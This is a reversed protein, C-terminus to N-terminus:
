RVLRQLFREVMLDLEVEVSTEEVVIREVHTIGADALLSDRSHDAAARGRHHPGDVEIMGVRGRYAVVFDPWFTRGVVRAGPSPLIAITAEAPLTAQKRLLAQYVKLEENSGFNLRDARRISAVSRYTGQNDIPREGRDRAAQRQARWDDAPTALRLKVTAVQLYWDANLERSREELFDLTEAKLMSYVAPDAAVVPTVSMGDMWESDFEYGLTCAVLLDAQESNDRADLALVVAGLDRDAGENLAELVDGIRSM